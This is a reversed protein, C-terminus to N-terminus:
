KTFVTRNWSCFLLICKVHRFFKLTVNFM